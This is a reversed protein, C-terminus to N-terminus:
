LRKLRHTPRAVRRSAMQAQDVLGPQRGFEDLNVAMVHGRDPLGDLKQADTPRRGDSHRRSITCHQACPRLTEGLRGRNAPGEALGRGVQAGATGGRHVEEPSKVPHIGDGRPGVRVIRAGEEIPQEGLGVRDGLLVAGHAAGDAAMTSAQDLRTFADQGVAVGAAQGRRVIACREGHYERGMLLSLVQADEGVFCPRKKLSGPQGGPLQLPTSDRDGQDAVVHGRLHHPFALDLFDDDSGVPDRGIAVRGVLDAGVAHGQQGTGMANGEVDRGWRAREVQRDGIARGNGDLLTLSALDGVAEAALSGGAVDVDVVGGEVDGGGFRMAPMMVSFPTIRGTFM